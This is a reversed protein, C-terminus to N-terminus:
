SALYEGRISAWTSPIVMQQGPNWPHLEDDKGTLFRNAAKLDRVEGGGAKALSGPTDNPQLKYWREDSM